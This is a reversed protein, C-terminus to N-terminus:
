NESSITAKDIPNIRRSERKLNDFKKQLNM